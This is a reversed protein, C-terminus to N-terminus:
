EHDNCDGCHEQRQAAVRIRPRRVVQLATASKVIAM